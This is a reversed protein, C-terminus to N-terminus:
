RPDPHPNGRGHHALGGLAHHEHMDTRTRLRWRTCTTSSSWARPAQASPQLLRHSPWISCIVGSAGKVAQASAALGGRAHPPGRREGPAQEGERGRLICPARAVGDRENTDLASWFVLARRIPGRSPSATAFYVPRVARAEMHWMGATAEGHRSNATPTQWYHM